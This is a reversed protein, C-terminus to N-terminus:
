GCGYLVKLHHSKQESNQIDSSYKLHRYMFNVTMLMMKRGNTKMQKFFRIFSYDLTM